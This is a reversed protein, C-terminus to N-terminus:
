TPRTLLIEGATNYSLTSIIGPSVWFKLSPEEPLSRYWSLDMYPKM